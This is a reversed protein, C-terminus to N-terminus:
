LKKQQLRRQGQESVTDLTSIAPIDVPPCLNSSNKWWGDGHCLLDTELSFCHPGKHGSLSLHGFGPLLDHRDQRASHGHGTSLDTKSQKIHVSLVQPDERSDVSVDSVALHSSPDVAELSEVTFEGARLFGFFGLCCAAWLMIIDAQSARPSWHRHLSKLIDPTIPLRPRKSRSSQLCKVGLLVYDLRPLRSSFLDGGGRSIQLHRVASLYCKITSYALHDQELYAVFCCIKKQRSM